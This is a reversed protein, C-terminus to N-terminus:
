APIEAFDCSRRRKVQVLGCEQLDASLTLSEAETLASGMHSVVAAACRSACLGMSRVDGSRLLGFLFGAAFADGAGCTDVVPRGSRHVPINHVQGLASVIAGRAGDTVM